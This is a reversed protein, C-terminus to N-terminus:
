VYLWTLLRNIWGIRVRFWRRSALQKGGFRLIFDRYTYKKFPLGADIFEFHEYGNRHAYNMAAWVALVGPYQLPYSKRMGCSLILYVDKGSFLCVSGGIIKDKHRIVFIKGLKQGHPEILLSLFFRVDPVYRYIKASYYKRCLNFFAHADEMTRAEDMVAGNKLGRAIQRKRSTSMWKDATAHHISNRVRLWRVPFYGEERFYRYGFLSDQLNRFELFLSRHKYCATFHALLDRFIQDRPVSSPFYEGTGYVYSKDSIGLLRRNYRCICLMKGVPVEGEFAVLLLPAYGPTLQLVHLLEVSHFADTGPLPPVDQARSYSIIRLLPNM